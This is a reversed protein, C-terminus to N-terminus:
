QRPLRQMVKMYTARVEDTVQRYHDLLAKGAPHSLGLRQGISEMRDTNKSIWNISSDSEVRVLVELARLFRYAEQLQKLEQENIFPNEPLHALLCQTGTVQFEPRERGEHVQILQLLFDIDALGGKGIKFNFRPQTTEQALEQEMRLRITEMYSPIRDDWSNYVFGSVAADIKAAM